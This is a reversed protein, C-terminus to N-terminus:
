RSYSAGRTLRRHGPALFGAPCSRQASRLEDGLMHCAPGTSGPQLWPTDDPAERPAPCSSALSARLPVGAERSRPQPVGSPPATRTTLLPCGAVVTWGLVSVQLALHAESEVPQACPLPEQDRQGTGPGPTFSNWPHGAPEMWRPQAVAWWCTVFALDAWDAWLM